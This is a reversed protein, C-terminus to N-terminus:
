SITNKGKGVWALAEGDSGLNDSGHEGRSASGVVGCRWGWALSPQAMVQRQWRVSVLAVGRVKFGSGRVM